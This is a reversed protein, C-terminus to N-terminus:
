RAYGAPAKTSTAPATAGSTVPPSPKSTTPPGAAPHPPSPAAKPYSSLSALATGWTYSKTILLELDEFTKAKAEEFDIVTAIAEAGRLAARQLNSIQERTIYTQSNDVLHLQKSMEEVLADAAPDTAYPYQSAEKEKEKKCNSSIGFVDAVGDSRLIPYCIRETMDELSKNSFRVSSGHVYVLYDKFPRHAQKVNEKL